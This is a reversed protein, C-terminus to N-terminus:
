LDRQMERYLWAKATRWDRKVTASSVDLVAATEEITMGAFFRCEVVKAQRPDMEELQGLAEDLAVIAEDQDASGLREEELTLPREGGGRKQANRRRAREVLVQRMARSAVAFFHSRDQWDVEHHRVLKFYAEHVLATTKLTNSRNGRLQLHALRHLEDYIAPFLRDLAERDGESLRELLRTVPTGSDAM